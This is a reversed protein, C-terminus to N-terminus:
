SFGGFFPQVGPVDRFPAPLDNGGMAENYLRDLDKDTMRSM